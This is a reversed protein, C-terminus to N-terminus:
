FRVSADDRLLSARGMYVPFLKKFTKILFLIRIILPQSNEVYQEQVCILPLDLGYERFYRCPYVSKIDHTSSVLIQVIRRKKIKNIRFFENLFSFTKLRIEDINDKEISYAGRVAKIM